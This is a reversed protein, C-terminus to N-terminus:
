PRLLVISNYYTLTNSAFIYFVYMDILLMSISKLFDLNKVM